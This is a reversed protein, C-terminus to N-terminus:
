HGPISGPTAHRIATNGVVDGGIKGGKKRLSKTKKRFPNDSSPPKNSNKSNKSIIAELEQVRNELNNIRDILTKIFSVTVEKGADYIAEIEKESIDILKKKAAM